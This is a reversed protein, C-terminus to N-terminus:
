DRTVDRRTAREAEGHFDTAYALHSLPSRPFFGFSSKSTLPKPCISVGRSPQLRYPSFVNYTRVASPLRWARKEADESARSIFIEFLTASSQFPRAFYGRSIGKDRSVDVPRRFQLGNGAYRVM